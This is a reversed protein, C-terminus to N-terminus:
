KGSAEQGAAAPVVIGPWRFSAVLRGGLQRGEIELNYLKQWRELIEREDPREADDLLIMCGPALSPALQPLVQYRALACTDGAPGDIFVFDVLGRRHLEYDPNRLFPNPVWVGPGEAAPQATFELLSVFSGGPPICARVAAAMDGDSELSTFSACNGNRALADALVLTSVGAGVECVNKPKLEGILSRLYHAHDPTISWSSIPVRCDAPLGYDEPSFPARTALQMSFIDRLDLTHYHGILHDLSGYVNFNCDKARECFLLDEGLVTSGDAKRPRLFVPYHGTMMDREIPPLYRRLREPVMNDLAITEIVGRRIMMAGTGAADCAILRGDPSPHLLDEQSLSQYRQGGPWRRYVNFHLVAESAVPVIAAVIDKNFAALDLLNVIQGDVDLRTDNDIMLLFDPREPDALFERCLYNRAEQSTRYSPTRRISVNFRQDLAAMQTAALWLSPNVWGGRESTTLVGIMVTQKGVSM